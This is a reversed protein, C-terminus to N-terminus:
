IKEDILLGIAERIRVHLNQLERPPIEKIVKDTENDVVKVVVQELERNISYDLRKNFTKTILSLEKVIRELEANDPSLDISPKEATDKQLSQSSMRQRQTRAIDIAPSVAHTIGTVDLAM